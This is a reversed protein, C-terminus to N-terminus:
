SSSTVCPLAAGMICFDEDGGPFRFGTSLDVFGLSRYLARAPTERDMTSLLARRYPLGDLLRTLLARGLGRGQAEPRVHLEAVEFGDRLWRDIQEVTLATRVVDHWWQGPATAYGYSFGLLRHGVRDDLAVFARFGPYTTHRAFVAVRGDLHDCRHMAAAYVQGAADLHRSFGRPGCEGIM